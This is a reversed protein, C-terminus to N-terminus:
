VSSLDEQNQDAMPRCMQLPLSVFSVFFVLKLLDQYIYDLQDM